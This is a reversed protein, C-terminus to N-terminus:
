QAQQAMPQGLSYDAIIECESLGEGVKLYFPDSTFVINDINSRENVTFRLLAGDKEIKVLHVVVVNNSEFQFGTAFARTDASGSRGDRVSTAFLQARRCCFDCAIKPDTSRTYDARNFTSLLRPPPYFLLDLM